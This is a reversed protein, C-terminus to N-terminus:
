QKQYGEFNHGTSEILVVNQKIFEFLKGEKEFFYSDKNPEHMEGFIKSNVVFNLDEYKTGHIDIVKYKANRTNIIATEM